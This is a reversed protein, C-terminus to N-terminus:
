DIKPPEGNPICSACDIEGVEADYTYVERWATPTGTPTSPSVNNYSTLTAATLFAAHAGDPAIQIRDIKTGPDLTAVYHVEGDRYLYLNKENYVGPDASDLQEPSYFFIDGSRSAIADDLEPRLTSLTQVDCLGTWQASCSDSNGNGNGQSVRTIENTAEHWVYLDNGVDTDDPTLQETSTFAVTSGDSTMGAFKVGAGDAIEYTVADDVRLYLHVNGAPAVTSMLIHSGDSSLAPIKIFEDSPGAGRAIPDGNADRSVIDITKNKVNNDYVSGPASELGGPAFAKDRSSFVFHRFDSSPMKDGVYSEGGPVISLNTPWRGLSEGSVDWVFPAESSPQHGETQFENQYDICEAMTASCLPNVTVLTDNGPRGPYTTVWGANTRTSVYRDILGNPPHLGNIVGAYGYFGFRAPNVAQGLANPPSVRTVFKFLFEAYPETVEGPFLLLAGANEPSVLEYARCDPLYSANTQQRVHSNPCSPPQFTFTTDPSYATGWKNTAVVRFYYTVGSQLDEVHGTVPEPESGSGIDVPSLSEGYARTTGYEFHYSTDFGIPNVKAHLDASDDAVSSARVAGVRPASPVTFTRDAARTTGLSNKAVLRYHYTRGPQLGTLVSPTVQMLGSVAGTPIRATKQTYITSIGYEFRYETNLGDPDLSGNLTATGPELETAPDTSASLVAHTEFTHDQSYNRGNGSNVVIRYHYVGGVILGSLHAGIQTDSAYPTAVDCPATFEYPIKPGYAIYCNTASPGAGIEIEASIDATNHRASAQTDAISPIPTPPGFVAVQSPGPGKVYIRGDTPGGSRDLGITDLTFYDAIHCEAASEGPPLVEEPGTGSGPCGDGGFMPGVQHNDLGWEQMGAWGYGIYVHENDPDMAMIELTSNFQPYFGGNGFIMEPAFDDTEAANLLGQRFFEKIQYRMFPATFGKGGVEPSHSRDYGGVYVYNKGAVVGHGPYYSQLKQQCGAIYCNTRTQGAFITHAPNGDVPAYRNITEYAHMPHVTYLVGDPSVAIGQSGSYVSEQGEVDVDGGQPFPQAQNITGKFVGASNFVDIEGDQQHPDGTLGVNNEVYIYGDAPGGSHDIAVPTNSFTLSNHSDTQRFGETPVRDCDAPTTPCDFGGKGDLLNSGLASFNVPNGNTDYKAVAKQDNLWVVINGSDDTGIPQPDSGNSINIYGLFPHTTDASATASSAGAFALGLIMTTLAARSARM